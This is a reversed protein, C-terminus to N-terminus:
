CYKFLRQGSFSGLRRLSRHGIGEVEREHDHEGHDPREVDEVLPRAVDTADLGAVAVGADSPANVNSAFGTVPVWYLAESKSPIRREVRTVTLTRGLMRSALAARFVFVSRM